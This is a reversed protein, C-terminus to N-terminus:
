KEVDISFVKQKSREGRILTVQHSKVKFYEALALVVARNAKGELPPEHVHVHLGGLLDREVRPRKSNPHVLVSLTINAM